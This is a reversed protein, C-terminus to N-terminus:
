LRAHVARRPQGPGPDGRRGIQWRLGVRHASNCHTVARNPFRCVASATLDAALEAPPEALYNRLARGVVARLSPDSVSRVGEQLAGTGLAPPGVFAPYAALQVAGGPAREIPVALFVLGSTDTQAAVTYDHEGARPEREQVVEAWEVRQEGTAPLQRGLDPEAAASCNFAM